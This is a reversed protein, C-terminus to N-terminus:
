SSQGKATYNFNQSSLPDYLAPKIAPNTFNYLLYLMSGPWTNMVYPLPTHASVNSFTITVSLGDDTTFTRAAGEQITFGAWDFWWVQNRLNGIGQDAYQAFVSLSLLLVVPLPLLRKM